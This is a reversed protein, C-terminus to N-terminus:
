QTNIQVAVETLQKKMVRVMKEIANGRRKNNSIKHTRCTLWKDIIRATFLRRAKQSAKSVKNTGKEPSCYQIKINNLNNVNKYGVKFFNQRGLGQLYKEINDQM